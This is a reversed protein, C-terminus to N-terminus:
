PCIFARLRVLLAHGAQDHDIEYKSRIEDVCFDGLQLGHKKFLKELIALTVYGDYTQPDKRFTRCSPFYFTMM